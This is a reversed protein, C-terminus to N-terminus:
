ISASDNLNSPMVFQEGEVAVIGAEVLFLLQFLFEGDGTLGVVPYM